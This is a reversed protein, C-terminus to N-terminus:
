EGLTTLSWLGAVPLSCIRSNFIVLSISVLFDSAASRARLSSQCCCESSCCLSGWSGLCTWSCCVPDTWCHGSWELRALGAARSGWAANEWRCSGVCGQQQQSTATGGEPEPILSKELAAQWLWDCLRPKVVTLFMGGLEIFCQFLIGSLFRYWPRLRPRSVGGSTVEM